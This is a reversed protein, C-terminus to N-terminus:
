NVAIVYADRFRNDLGALRTKLSDADPRAMPAIRVRLILNGEAESGKRMVQIKEAEVHGSLLKRYRAVCGESRCAGVQLSYDGPSSAMPTKPKAPPTKVVPVFPLETAPISPGAPTPTAVPLAAGIKNPKVAELTIEQTRPADAEAVPEVPALSPPLTSGMNSFREPLSLALWGAGMGFSFLVCAMLSFKAMTKIVAGASHKRGNHSTGMPRRPTKGEMGRQIESSRRSSSRQRAPAPSAIWGEDQGPEPEDNFSLDDLTSLKEFFADFESKEDPMEAKLDSQDFDGPLGDGPKISRFFSELHQQEPSM